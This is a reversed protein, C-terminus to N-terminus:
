ADHSEGRRNRVVAEAAQRARAEAEAKVPQLQLRQM